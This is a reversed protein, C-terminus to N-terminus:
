LKIKFFLCIFFITGVIPYLLWIFEKKKNIEVYRLYALLILSAVLGIINYIM